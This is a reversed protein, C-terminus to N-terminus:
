QCRTRWRIRANRLTPSARGDIRSLPLALGVRRFARQKRTMGHRHWVDAPAGWQCSAVSRVIEVLARDQTVVKRSRRRRIGTRGSSRTTPARRRMPKLLRCTPDARGATPLGPRFSATRVSAFRGGEAASGRHREIERFVEDSRNGKSELFRYLGMWAPSRDMCGHCHVLIPWAGPDEPWRSRRMSSGIRSRSWRVPQRSLALGHERVFRIEDEHYPSAQTSAEDFLNIITKFHLRQGARDALARYSPMASISLDQRPGGCSASGAASSLGDAM